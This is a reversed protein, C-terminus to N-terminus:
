ALYSDRIARVSWLSNAELRIAQLATVDQEVAKDTVERLLLEANFFDERAAQLETINAERLQAIFLM